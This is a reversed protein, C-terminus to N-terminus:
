GGAGGGWNGQCRRLAGLLAETDVVPEIEVMAIKM